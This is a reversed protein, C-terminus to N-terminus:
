FEAIYGEPAEHTTDKTIELNPRRMISHVTTKM